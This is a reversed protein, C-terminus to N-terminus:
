FSSLTHSVEQMLIACEVEFLGDFIGIVIQHTRANAQPTQHMALNRLEEVARYFETGHFETMERVYDVMQAANPLAAARTTLLEWKFRWQGEVVAAAPAHCVNCTVISEVDENHQM